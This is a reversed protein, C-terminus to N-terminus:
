GCHYPLTHMGCVRAQHQIIFVYTHSAIHEVNDYKYSTYVINDDNKQQTQRQATHVRIGVGSRDSLIDPVVRACMWKYNLATDNQRVSDMCLRQDYISETVNAILM